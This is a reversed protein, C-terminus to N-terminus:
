DGASAKKQPVAAAPVGVPSRGISHYTFGSSEMEEPVYINRLDVILPRRMLTKLRELDLARFANWETLIAVCDAGEAAAYADACWAVGDLLKKAERM